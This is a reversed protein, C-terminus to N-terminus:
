IQIWFNCPLDVLIRLALILKKKKGLLVRRIFWRFDKENRQPLNKFLKGSIQISKVPFNRLM